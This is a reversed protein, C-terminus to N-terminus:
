NIERILRVCAGGRRSLYGSFSIAPNNNSHLTMMQALESNYGTSSWYYCYTNVDVIDRKSRTGAMPLFVAGAAIMRGYEDSNVSHKGAESIMNSGNLGTDWGDPFFFVGNMSNQSVSLEVCSWRCDGSRGQSLYQWEVYSPTRWTNFGGISGANVGWDGQAYTDTLNNVGVPGYDEQNGDTNYPLYKSGYGSGGNNWGSTGWGFLSVTNKDAYDTSIANTGNTEFTSYPYEMFSFSYNAWSDTTTAQLNSPAIIVRKSGSVSFAPLSAIKKTGKARILAPLDPRSMEYIKTSGNYAAVTISGTVGNPVPINFVKNDWWVGAHAPLNFTVVNNSASATTSVTPTETDPNSVAFDGTVAYGFTFTVKTASPPINNVTMRVLAGVHKFSLDADPVNGKAIMVMPSFDANSNYTYTDAYHVQLDGTTAHGAVAASAPYIAYNQRTGGGLDVTFTASKSGGSALASTNKYGATTHIAIQDGATWTFALADSIAAKTDNSEAGAILTIVNNVPDANEQSKIEETSCSALMGGLLVAIIWIYRKM